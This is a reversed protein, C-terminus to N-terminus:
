TFAALINRKFVSDSCQYKELINSSLQIHRRNNNIVGKPLHKSLVMTPVILFSNCSHCRGTVVTLSPMMALSNM